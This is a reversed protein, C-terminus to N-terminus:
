SWILHVAVNASANLVFSTCSPDLSFSDPDTVHLPVGVDGASGKLRLATLNGFPKTITCATPVTGASPVTIVNDGAILEIPADPGPANMNNAAYYSDTGQLDGSFQLTVTRFANIM